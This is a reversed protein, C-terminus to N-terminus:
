RDSSAHRTNLSIFGFLGGPGRFPVFPQNAAAAAAVAAAYMGCKMELALRVFMM